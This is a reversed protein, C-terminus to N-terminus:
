IEEMTITVQVQKVKDTSYEDMCEHESKCLGFSQEAVEEAMDITDELSEAKPLWGTITRQM